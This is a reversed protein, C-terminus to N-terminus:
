FSYHTKIKLTYLKKFFNNIYFISYKRGIKSKICQNSHKEFNQLCIEHTYLSLKDSETIRLEHFLKLATLQKGPM